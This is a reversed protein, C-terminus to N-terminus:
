RTGGPLRTADGHERHHLRSFLRELLVFRIGFVVVYVALFVGAVLAVRVRHTVGRDHLLVDAGHTALTALVLTTLIIAAYPLV